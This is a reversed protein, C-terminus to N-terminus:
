NSICCKDITIFKFNKYSTYLTIVPIAKGNITEYTMNEKYKEDIKLEIGRPLIIEDEPLVTIKQIIL